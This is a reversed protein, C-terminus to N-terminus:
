SRGVFLGPLTDVDRRLDDTRPPTDGFEAETRAGASITSLFGAM